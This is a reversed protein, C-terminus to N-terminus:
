VHVFVYMELVYVTINVYVYVYKLICTYTVSVGNGLAAFDVAGKGTCLKNFGEMVDKGEVVFTIPAM